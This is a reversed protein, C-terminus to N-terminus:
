AIELISTSWGDAKTPKQFLSHSAHRPLITLPNYFCDSWELVFKNWLEMDLEDHCQQLGVPAGSGHECKLCDCVQLLGLRSLLGIM